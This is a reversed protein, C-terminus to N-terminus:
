QPRATHKAIRRAVALFNDRAASPRDSRWAVYLTSREGRIPVFVVDGGRLSRYSQVLISVGLGAAVLGLLTHAQPAEQVIRPSFGAARCREDIADHTEPDIRRPWLVFDEGRLDRFSVRRRGVLRHDRAVAVCQEEVALAEFRVDDLERATRLVGVDLRGQALGELQPEDLEESLELVVAPFATRFTRVAAPVLENTASPLFGIRLRGVEGRGVRQTEALARDVEAFARPAEDLLTQGAETLRVSRNTRALLQVGAQRELEQIARSLAPQSVRLRTAARGFHLEEAV